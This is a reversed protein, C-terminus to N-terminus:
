PSELWKRTLRDPVMRLTLVRIRGKGLEELLAYDRWMSGLLLGPGDNLFVIKM